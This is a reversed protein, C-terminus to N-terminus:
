PGLGEPSPQNKTGARQAQFQLCRKGMNMGGKVQRLCTREEPHCFPSLRQLSLATASGLCKEFRIRVVGELNLGPGLRDRIRSNLIM